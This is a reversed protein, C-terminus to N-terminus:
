ANGSCKSCTSVTVNLEGCRHCFKSRKLTCSRFTHNPQQCNWCIVKSAKKNDRTKSFEESRRSVHPRLSLQKTPLSSSLARSSTEIGESVNALEPEIMSFSPRLSQRSKSGILRNDELRKCLKMLDSVATVEYLALQSYYQPLLNQRIYKVKTTEVPPRSLRKFLTEMVAIYISVPETKGQVRAKIEDWMQDDFDSPLFEKKIAAVLADWDTVTTRVSRYWILARGTFLEISSSFLEQQSVHRAEALEEVRELFSIVNKSEGDFNIGWKYVPVTKANVPATLTPNVNTAPPNAIPLMITGPVNTIHEYLEAEMELCNAYAENKYTTVDDADEDPIKIRQIRGIVHALRTKVRKVTSDSEPGEFDAIITKLSNVTKGIAEVESDFDYNPDEWVVARHKEKELARTLIKRRAAVDRGTVIGRIKLEYDIEDSLLYNAKIQEM